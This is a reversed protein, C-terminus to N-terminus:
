YYYLLIVVFVLLNAMFDSKLVVSSSKKHAAPAPGVQPPPSINDSAPSLSPSIIPHPSMVDVIMKQGNICHDYNGSIFYFMGSRDLNIVSKGDNSESIPDRADCQEYDLKEVTIVSDNNYVFEAGM